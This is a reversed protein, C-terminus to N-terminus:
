KKKSASSKTAGVGAKTHKAIKRTLAFEGLRHGLMQEIILVKEYEKGNYIYITKGVMKPVIILERDHTKILKNKALKKESRKVFKELIDYNRLIARRPRSKVLKAFERLDLKKLEEIEIGRYSKEKGKHLVDVM